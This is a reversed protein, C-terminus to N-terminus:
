APDEYGTITLVVTDASDAWGQIKEGAALEYPYSEHLVDDAPVPADEFIRTAAADAGISLNIDVPSGSPNSAHIHLIRTVTSAPCTYLDAASGTLQAPGTLRKYVRGSPTVSPGIWDDTSVALDDFYVTYPSAPATVNLGFNAIDTNAGLVAATANATDDYSGAAADATNYLRWELEGVTTSSIVRMEIRVWQGTAVAVTGESIGSNGADRGQILGSSLIRLIASSANASTRVGLPYLNNDVLSPIYMYLRFYVNGTLSGLGSWQAFLTGGPASTYNFRMSLTDRAQASSFYPSGEVSGTTDDFADGSGSASNASTIEVGDTGGELTNALPPSAM